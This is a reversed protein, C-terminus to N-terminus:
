KNYTAETIRNRTFIDILLAGLIGMAASPISVVVFVNQIMGFYIQAIMSPWVVKSELVENYTYTILPYYMMFFAISVIIGATYLSFRSRFFTLVADAAVIPIITSIYFPVTQILASNPIISTLVGITIFAAGVMSLVGFQKRALVSSCMLCASILFPFAITAVIVGLTPPPNFNFYDTESFPLSFMDIMGSAALWIPLVAIVILASPLMKTSKALGILAGVSGILMGSVLVFHPPSLLGDLGFASHWGFDVPAASILMVVGSIALKSPWSMSGASGATHSRSASFVLVIGVVASAAGSYLVAHPPAFFTEPKNLLHNTIDWSGGAAALLMGLSVLVYGAFLKRGLGYVERYEQHRFYDL